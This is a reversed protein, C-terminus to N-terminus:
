KPTLMLVTGSSADTWYVSTADVAVGAPQTGPGSALTAVSGGGITVKVLAGSHNNANTARETWYVSSGDSAIGIPQARGRALTTTSGGGIPVMALAYDLANGEVPYYVNLADV